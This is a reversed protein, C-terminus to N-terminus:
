YDLNFVGFCHRWSTRGVSVIDSSIADQCCVSRNEEHKAYFHVEYYEIINTGPMDPLSTVADNM